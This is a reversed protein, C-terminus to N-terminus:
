GHVLGDDAGVGGFAVPFTEGPIQAPWGGLLAQASQQAAGPKVTHSGALRPEISQAVHAKDHLVAHQHSSQGGLLPGPPM